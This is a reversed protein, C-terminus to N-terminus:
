SESDPTGSEMAGGSGDHGAGDSGGMSGHIGGMQGLMQDMHAHMEECMERMGAPMQELMQAHSMDGGRHMWGEGNGHVAAVAFGVGLSLLVAGVVAIVIWRAKM